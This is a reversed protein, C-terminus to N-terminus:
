GGKADLRACAPPDTSKAIKESCKAPAEEIKPAMLKIEVIKFIRQSPIGRSRIVKNTQDTFIVAIKNSRESGTKAPAMVISKVSRFKLVANKSGTPPPSGM